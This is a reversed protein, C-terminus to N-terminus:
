VGVSNPLNGKIIIPTSLTRQTNQVIKNSSPQILTNFIPLKGSNRRIPAQRTVALRNVQYVM